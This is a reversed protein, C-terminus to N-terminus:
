KFNPERSGDTQSRDPKLHSIERGTPTRGGPSPRSVTTSTIPHDSLPRCDSRGGRLSPGGIAAATGSHRRTGPGRGLRGSFCQLSLGPGAGACCLLRERERYHPPLPRSLSPAPPSLMDLSAM